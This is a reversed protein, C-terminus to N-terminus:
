KLPILVHLLKCPTNGVMNPKAVRPWRKNISSSTSLQGLIVFSIMTPFVGQLNNCTNRQLLLKEYFLNYGSEHFGSMIACRHLNM